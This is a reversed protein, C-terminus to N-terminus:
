VGAPGFQEAPGVGYRQLATAVKAECVDSRWATADVGCRRAFSQIGALTFTPHKAWLSEWDANDIKDTLMVGDVNEFLLEYASMGALSRDDSARVFPAILAILDKKLRCCLTGDSASASAAGFHGTLLETLEAGGGKRRPRKRPGAENRSKRQRDQAPFSIFAVMRALETQVARADTRPHRRRAGSRPQQLLEASAGFTNSLEWVREVEDAMRTSELMHPQRGDASALECSSWGLDILRVEFRLPHPKLAVAPECVQRLLDHPLEGVGGTARSLASTAFALRQRASRLLRAEDARPKRLMINRANLDGHLFRSERWMLVVAAAVALLASAVDACKAGRGGKILEHLAFWGSAESLEPYVADATLHRVTRNLPQALLADVAAKLVSDAGAALSRRGTQLEARLRLNEEYMKIQEARESATAVGESFREKVSRAASLGVVIARPQLVYRVAWARHTEGGHGTSGVGLDLAVWAFLAEALVLAMYRTTRSESGPLTLGTKLVMPFGGRAATHWVEGNGGTALKKGKPFQPDSGGDPAKRLQLLVNNFIEMVCDAALVQLSSLTGASFMDAATKHWTVAARYRPQARWM